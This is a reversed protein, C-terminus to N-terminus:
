QDRALKDVAALLHARHEGSLQGTEPDADFRAPASTWRGDSGFAAPDFAPSDDIELASFPV